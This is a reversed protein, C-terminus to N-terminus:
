DLQSRICVIPGLLSEPVLRGPPLYVSKKYRLRINHQGRYGDMAEHTSFVIHAAPKEVFAKRVDLDM